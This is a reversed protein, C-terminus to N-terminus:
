DQIYAISINIDLRFYINSVQQKDLRQTECRQNSFM